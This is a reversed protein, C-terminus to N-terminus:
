RQTSLIIPTRGIVRKSEKSIRLWTWSGSWGEISSTLSRSASSSSSFKTLREWILYSTEWIMRFRASTRSSKRSFLVWQHFLAHSRILLTTLKIKCKSSGLWLNLFREVAVEMLTYWTAEFRIMLTLKIGRGVRSNLMTINNMKAQLHNMSMMSIATSWLLQLWFSKSSESAILKIYKNHLVMDLKVATSNILNLLVRLWIDKSILGGMTLDKRLKCGPVPMM